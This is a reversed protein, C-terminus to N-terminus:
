GRTVPQVGRAAEEALMRRYRWFASSTWLRWLSALHWGMHRLSRRSARQADHVVRAHEALRLTWGALRLRACLDVDECYMHYGEDFGGIETYAKRHVALFMGAFWAPHADPGQHEFSLKRAILRPLTVLERASDALRGDPELVHPAVLGVGPGTAALLAPFPDELLRIDPNMIVFWDTECARFASNHNAGFSASEDNEIITIPLDLDPPIEIAPEPRNRTVILHALLPPRLRALDFLLSEVLARQGHSVISVTFRGPAAQTHSAAAPM